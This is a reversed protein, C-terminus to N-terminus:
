RTIHRTSVPIHQTSRNLWRDLGGERRGRTRWLRVHQSTKGSAILAVIRYLYMDVGPKVSVTDFTNTHTRSTNSAREGAVGRSARDQSRV